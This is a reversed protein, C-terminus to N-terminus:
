DAARNYVSEDTTYFFSLDKNKTFYDLMEKSSTFEEDINETVEFVKLKDKGEMEIKYFSYTSDQQVNVFRTDGIVTLFCDYPGSISYEEEYTDYEFKELKFRVGDIDTIEMYDPDEKEGYDSTLVWTGMLESGHKVNPKSLPVTSTYPCAAFVLGAFIVMCIIVFSNKRM